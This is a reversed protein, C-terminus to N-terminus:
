DEVKQYPLSANKKIPEPSKKIREVQEYDSKNYDDMYPEDAERKRVDFNFRNKMYRAEDPDFKLTSAERRGEIVDSILDIQLAAEPSIQEVEEAIKDLRETYEQANKLMAKEKESPIDTEETETISEEEVPPEPPPAEEEPPTEGTDGQKARDILELLPEMRTKIEDMDFENVKQYIDELRDLHTVAKKIDESVQQVYDKDM